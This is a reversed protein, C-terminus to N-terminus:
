ANGFSIINIEPTLDKGSEIGYLWPMPTSNNLKPLRFPNNILVLSEATWCSILTKLKLKNWSQLTYISLLNLLATIIETNHIMIRYTAEECSEETIILSSVDIAEIVLYNFFLKWRKLSAYVLPM